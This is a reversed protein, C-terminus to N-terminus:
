QFWLTVIQKYTFNGAPRCEISSVTDATCHVFTCPHPAATGPCAPAPTFLPSLANDILIFAQKVRSSCASNTPQGRTQENQAPFITTLHRM